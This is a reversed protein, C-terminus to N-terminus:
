TIQLKMGYINYIVPKIEGNGSTQIVTKGTNILKVAIEPHVLAIRTLM